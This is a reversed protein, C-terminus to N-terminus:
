WVGIPWSACEGVSLRKLGESTDKRYMVTSSSMISWDRIFENIKKEGKKKKTELVM